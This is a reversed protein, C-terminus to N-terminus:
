KFLQKDTVHKEKPPFRRDFEELAAADFAFVGLDDFKGAIGAMTGPALELAMFPEFNEGDVTTIGYERANKFGFRHYYRPNGFIVVGKFGLARAKELGAKILLSGVGKKQQEPAVALPGMSLVTFEAGHANTVKAKSFVINGVITEGECAVFDLEKVFQPLARMNHLVFHEVCGPRYVDWFAERTLNEVAGFDAETELRIAPSEKLKLCAITEVHETHPFLDFAELSVVTYRSAFAGLDRALAKPNCSVYIINEPAIALINKVAKPHLGARPPDLLFVGDPQFVTGAKVQEDLWDETKACVFEVNSISNEAANERGDRVADPVFEVTVVTCAKDHCSFGLGGAGGYLDYLRGCNLGAVLERVRSYLRQAARTNTQLFSRPTIKFSLTLEPAGDPGIFFKETIFEPGALHILHESQATDRLEDTEGYMICADPWVSQVAKVFGEKDFGGSKLFLVAMKGGTNKAERVLLHRLVGTHTKADLYETNTAQAWGRVAALLRGADPSAILCETLDFARDWRGKEKMGFRSEFFKPSDKAPTKERDIQRSFSFEMKNRYFWQDPAPSVKIEVPWFSGLLATLAKAKRAWQEAYPVDQASCGGCVRYHACLKQM